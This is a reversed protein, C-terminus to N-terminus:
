LFSSTIRPVRRRVFHLCHRWQNLHPEQAATQTKSRSTHVICAQTCKNGVNHLMIANRCSQYGNHLYVTGDKLCISITLTVNRCKNAPKKSCDQVAMQVCEAPHSAHKENSCSGLEGAVNNSANGWRIAKKGKGKEKCSYANCQLVGLGIGIDRSHFGCM